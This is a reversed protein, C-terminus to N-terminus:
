VPLRRGGPYSPYFSLRPTAAYITNSQAKRRSPTAHPHDHLEPPLDTYPDAWFVEGIELYGFIAHFGNSGRRFRLGGGGLETHRFWGYFLFLDGQAVGQNRLHSGAAGLQGFAPRWGHLRPRAGRVLDPDLHAGRMEGIRAGAALEDIIWGLDKGDPAPIDDYRLRDTQSPIPLSVMKGDSLIPSAHGGAESDFGKRSLIIKM